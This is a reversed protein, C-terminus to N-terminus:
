EAADAIHRKFQSNDNDGGRPGHIASWVNAPTTPMTIDNHGIADTVANVLAPPSGIAGAEGCGKVGLPNGPCLTEHTSVKFTPLDEARPMQYDLYSASVLQGETDYVAQEM